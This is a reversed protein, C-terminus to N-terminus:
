NLFEELSKKKAKLAYRPFKKKKHGAGSLATTGLSVSEAVPAFEELGPTMALGLAAGQSINSVTKLGKRIKKGFLHKKKGNGAQSPAVSTTEEFAPNSIICNITHGGVGNKKQIYLKVPIHSMEEQDIFKKEFQLPTCKLKIATNRSM